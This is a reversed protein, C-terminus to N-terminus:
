LSAVGERELFRLKWGVADRWCEARKQTKSYSSCHEDKTREENVIELIGMINNKEINKVSPM